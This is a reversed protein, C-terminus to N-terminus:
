FLSDAPVPLGSPIERGTSVRFPFKMIPKTESVFQSKYNINLFIIFFIRFLCISFFIMDCEFDNRIFCHFNTEIFFANFFRFM